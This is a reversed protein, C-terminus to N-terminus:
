LSRGRKAQWELERRSKELLKDLADKTTVEPLHPTEVKGGSTLLIGLAILGLGVCAMVILFVSATM